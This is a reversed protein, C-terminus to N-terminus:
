NYKKKDHIQKVKSKVILMADKWGGDRCTPERKYPGNNMKYTLWDQLERYEEDSM